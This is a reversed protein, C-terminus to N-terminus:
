KGNKRRYKDRSALWKEMWETNAGYLINKVEKTQHNYVIAINSMPCHRLSINGKPTHYKFGNEIIFSIDKETIDNKAMKQKLSSDFILEEDISPIPASYSRFSEAVDALEPLSSGNIMAFMFLGMIFFLLMGLMRGEAMHLM